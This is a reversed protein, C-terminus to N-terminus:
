EVVFVDENNKKMLYNERAFKELNEKNSHLENFKVKNSDAQTEYFEIQKKVGRIQREYQVRKIISNEGFVFLIALLGLLALVQLYSFGLIKRNKFSKHEEM